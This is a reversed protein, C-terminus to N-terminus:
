YSYDSTKKPHDFRVAHLRYPSRLPPFPLTHPFISPFDGSSHHQRNVQEATLGGEKRKFSIKAVEGSGDGDSGAQAQAERQGGSSAQQQQQAQQRQSHAERDTQAEEEQEIAGKPIDPLPHEAVYVAAQLVKVLGEKSRWDTRQILQKDEDHKLAKILQDQVSEGRLAGRQMEKRKWAEDDDDNEEEKEVKSPRSPMSSGAHDWEREEGEGAKALISEVSSLEGELSHELRALSRRLQSGIVVGENGGRGQGQREAALLIRLLREHSEAKRGELLVSPRANDNSLGCLAAVALVLAFSALASHFRMMTM